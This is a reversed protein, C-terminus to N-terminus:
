ISNVPLIIQKPNLKIVKPLIKRLHNIATLLISGGRFDNIKSTNMIPVPLNLYFLGEKNKDDDLVAEFASFDNQLHYALIPLTLIAGYGYLPFKSAKLYENTLFMRKRYIKYDEIIKESNILNFYSSAFTGKNNGKKFAVLLSGWHSQNTTFDIIKANLNNLLYEFSQLSFYHIHHHFIQDFRNEEVLTEICPFQFIFLTDQSSYELLKRIMSRPEEIHELNHSSIVLVDGSGALDGLDINDFFDGIISIRSDPLIEDSKRLIPDIGILREADDKLKNLLYLDNCGIEIITKFQRNKIVQKIFEHFFDNGSVSSASGSTRFSYSSEYLIEPDIITSM